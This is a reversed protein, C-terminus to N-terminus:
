KAKRLRNINECATKTNLKCGKEYYSLAMNKNKEVGFGNEYAVGVSNCGMGFNFSCSKYHYEFSKHEDPAIEPDHSGLFYINAMNFCSEGDKLQCAKDYYTIAQAHSAEVGMGIDLLGAVEKCAYAVGNNCANIYLEVAKEFEGIRSLENATKYMEENSASFASSSFMIIFIFSVFVKM